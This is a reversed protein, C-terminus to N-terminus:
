GSYVQLMYSLEKPTFHSDKGIAAVAQHYGKLMNVELQEIERVKYFYTIIDKVKWLEDFYNQYLDKQKQVWTAIEELKLKSMTNEVAKQANQLWITKNQLRQIKLDIAKIVKTIGEQIILAIDQAESIRPFLFLCTCALIIIRKKM